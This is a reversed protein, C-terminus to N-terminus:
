VRFYIIYITNDYQPNFNLIVTPKGEGGMTHSAVGAISCKKSNTKGSVKYTVLKPQKRGDKQVRQEGVVPMNELGYTNSATVNDQKLESADVKHSLIKLNQRAQQKRKEEEKMMLYEPNADIEADTKGQSHLHQRFKEMKYSYQALGTKGPLTSLGTAGSSSTAASAQSPVGEIGPSLHSGNGSESHYQKSPSESCVPTSYNDVGTSRLTFEKSHVNLESFSSDRPRSKPLHASHSYSDQMGQYSQSRSSAAVNVQQFPLSDVTGMSQNPDASSDCHKIGGSEAHIVTKSMSYMPFNCYNCKKLGLLVKCHCGPCFVSGPVDSTHQSSSGEDSYLPHVVEPPLASAHSSIAKTKTETLTNSTTLHYVDGTNRWSQDYQQKLALRKQRLNELASEHENAPSAVSVSKDPTDEVVITSATASTATSSITSTVTTPNLMTSASIYPSPTSSLTNSTPGHQYPLLRPIDDINLAVHPEPKPHQRSSTPGHQHPSLRPIDDINLALHPQPKPHQRYFM